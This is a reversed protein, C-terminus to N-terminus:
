EDKNDLAATTAAYLAKQDDKCFDLDHASKAALVGTGLEAHQGLEDSNPQRNILNHFNRLMEEYVALSIGTGKLIENVHFLAASKVA